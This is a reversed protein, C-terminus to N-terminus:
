IFMEDVRSDIRQYLLEREDNLVFYCFNYPSEKAREKENHDSIKQGTQKYFELAEQNTM